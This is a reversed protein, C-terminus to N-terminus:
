PIHFEQWDSVGPAVNNLFLNKVLINDETYVEDGQFYYTKHTPLCDNVRRYARSGRINLFNQIASM